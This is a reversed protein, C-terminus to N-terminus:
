MVVKSGEAISNYLIVCFWICVNIYMMCIETLANKHCGNCTQNFFYFMTIHIWTYICIHVNIYVHTCM